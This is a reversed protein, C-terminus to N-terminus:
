KVIYKQGNRVYIGKKTPQGQMKRGDLSYWTDENGRRLSSPDPTTQVAEIGTEGDEGFGIYGRASSNIPLELHAKNGDLSGTFKYFGLDGTGDEGRSLTYAEYGDAVTTGGKLDNNSYNGTPASSTLEMDLTGAASAKLIVAQGAKIVNGDVKTLDLQSGNLAGKYIEVGTTNIKV